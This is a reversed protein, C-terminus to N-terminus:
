FGFGFSIGGGSRGGTGGGGFISWRPPRQYLSSDSDKEWAHIHHITLTPYRYDAEDLSALQSGTMEGVLTVRTHPPFTAPDLFMKNIAIFRGESLSRQQRPQEWENLPLQLIEFRTGDEVSQAHLVEGGLLVWKGNYSDPNQLIQAFSLQKDVRSELAEPIVSSSSACAQIFFFCAIISIRLYQNGFM